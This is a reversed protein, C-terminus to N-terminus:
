VFKGSLFVDRFVKLREHLADVNVLQKREEDTPLAIPPPIHIPPITIPGNQSEQGIVNLALFYIVTKVLPWPLTIATHQEVVERGSKQDSQGFVMKLDLVTSEFRVNNAYAETFDDTREFTAPAAQPLQEPM